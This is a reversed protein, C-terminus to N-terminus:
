SEGDEPNKVWEYGAAKTTKTQSGGSAVTVPAACIYGAKLCRAIIRGARDSRWGTLDRIRRVNARSGPEAKLQWLMDVLLNADARVMAQQKLQDREMQRDITETNAREKVETRAESALKVSVDWRRGTFDEDIAGEAIDLAWEGSHGASGGVTLWLKHEGSGPEYRERRGILLWQRAFEQIGAFALDDLEPLGYRSERTLKFHHCLIPTAGADLCTQTVSSLLPGMDYLNSAEGKGGALLCLYLPDIVVVELKNEHIVRALEALHDDRSLQPLKFCWVINGLDAPDLDKVRCIRRATEQVTAAGSEGSFFGVGVPQVVVFQGLFKVATALSIALEILISTKLVKKPGGMVLPQDAVLIKHILWRLKYGTTFFTASTMVDLRFPRNKPEEDPEDGPDQESEKLAQLIARASEQRAKGRIGKLYRAVTEAREQPTDLGESEDLLRAVDGWEPEAKSLAAESKPTIRRGHIKRSIAAALAEDAHARGNKPATASFRMVGGGEASHGRGENGGNGGTNQSPDASDSQTDDAHSNNTSTATSVADGGPWPYAM